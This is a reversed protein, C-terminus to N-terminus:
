QFSRYNFHIFLTFSNLKMFVNKKIKNKKYKNCKHLFSIEQLSICYRM